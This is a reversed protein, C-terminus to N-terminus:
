WQGRLRAKQSSKLYRLCGQDEPGKCQRPWSRQEPREGELLGTWAQKRPLWLSRFHLECAGWPRPQSSGGSYVQWMRSAVAPWLALGCELPSSVSEVEQYSFCWPWQAFLISLFLLQSWKQSACILKAKRQPPRLPGRPLSSEEKYLKRIGKKKSVM